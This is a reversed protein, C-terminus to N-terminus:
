TTRGDVITLNKVTPYSVGFGSNGSSDHSGQVEYDNSSPDIVPTYVIHKAVKTIFLYLFLEILKSPSSKLLDALEDFTEKGNEFFTIGIYNDSVRPEKFFRDVFFLSYVGENNFPIIFLVGNGYGRRESTDIKQNYLVRDVWNGYAYDSKGFSQFYQRISLAFATGHQENLSDAYQKSWVLEGKENRTHEFFGSQFISGVTEQVTAEIKKFLNAIKLIEEQTLTQKIYDQLFAVGEPILSGQGEFILYDLAEQTTFAALDKAPEHVKQQGIPEPNIEPYESSVINKGQETLGGEDILRRLLQKFFASEEEPTKKNLEKQMQLM